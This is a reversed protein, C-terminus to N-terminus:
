RISQQFNFVNCPDYLRKVRRLRAANGGYYAQMYDKLNSYPFNVFSGATLGALYPFNRNVWAINDQEYEDQTWVSQLLAIYRTDRYFFATESRGPRSVAGGLAYLSYATFVSGEPYARLTDVLRAIQELSLPRTVFRGTSKFKEYPPYSEGITQTAEYFTMPSFTAQCGPLEALPAVAEQAEEPTGYFIGRSYAAFGEDPAHYIAAQLTVREDAGELWRQWAAWFDIQAQADTDPYYLEILTVTEPKLDPLRFVLGTIIGFSGGGGGRLAWFLEQNCHTNATMARGCADVLEASELSDCGLGLLRCSLGWGGGQAFGSVGVTPCTGGPFVYGLPGLAGYIAANNAGGEVRLLDDEVSVANMRSVDIVLAGNGTSYGEYHHGGGRIRLPMGHGFAWKLSRSVDERNECYVIARPFKDIRRNWEQRAEGYAPDWPLVIDGKVGQIRGKQV